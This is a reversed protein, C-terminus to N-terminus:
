HSTGRRAAVYAALEKMAEPALLVTRGGVEPLSRRPRYNTWATPVILHEGEQTEVRLADHGHTLLVIV